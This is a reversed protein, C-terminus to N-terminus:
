TYAATCDRGNADGGGEQQTDCSSKMAERRIQEESLYRESCEVNRKMHAWLSAEVASEVEQEFSRGHAEALAAIRRYLDSDKELIVDVTQHYYEKGM